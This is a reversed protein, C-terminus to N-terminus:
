KPKLMMLPQHPEATTKQIRDLLSGGMGIQQRLTEVQEEVSQQPAAKKRKPISKPSSASMPPPSVKQPAKFPIERKEKIHGDDALQKKINQHTKEVDLHRAGYRIAKAGSLLEKATIPTDKDEAYRKKMYEQFEELDRGTRVFPIQVQNANSSLRAGATVGGLWLLPSFGKRTAHRVITVGAAKSTSSAMEGLFGFKSPTAVDPRNHVKSALDELRDLAKASLRHSDKRIADKVGEQMWGGWGDQVMKKLSDKAAKKAAGKAGVAAVAVGGTGIIAMGSAVADVTDFADWAANWWFNKGYKKKQEEYALKLIDRDSEWYWHEYRAQELKANARVYASTGYKGKKELEQVADYADGMKHEKWLTVAGSAWQKAKTWMMAFVSPDTSPIEPQPEKEPNVAHEALRSQQYGYKQRLRIKEEDAFQDNINHTKANAEPDKYDVIHKAERKAQETSMFKDWISIPM